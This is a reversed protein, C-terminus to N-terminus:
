SAPQAPLILLACHLLGWALLHTWGGKLAEPMYPATCFLLHLLRLLNSSHISQPPFLKGSWFCSEFPRIYTSHHFSSFSFQLLTSVSLGFNITTGGTHNTFPSRSKSLQICRLLPNCYVSFPNSFFTIYAVSYSPYPRIWEWVFIWTQGALSLLVSILCISSRPAILRIRSFSQSVSHTFQRAVSLLRPHYHRNHRKIIFTSITTSYWEHM